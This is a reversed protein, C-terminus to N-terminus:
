PEFPQGNWNGSSFVGSTSTDSSSSTASNLVPFNQYNNAGVHGRSDNLVVQGNGGLDIGLGANDHISNGEIQVGTAATPQPNPGDPSAVPPGLNHAITNGAGPTTGGILITGGASGVGSDVVIGQGNRICTGASNVGIFNGQVTSGGCDYPGGASFSE